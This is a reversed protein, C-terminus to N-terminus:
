KKKGSMKKDRRVRKKKKLCISSLFKERWKDSCFNRKEVFKKKSKIVLKLKKYLTREFIDCLIQFM